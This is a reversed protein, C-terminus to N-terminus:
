AQFSYGIKLKILPSTKQHTFDKPNGFLWWYATASIVSKEFRVLVRLYEYCLIDESDEQIYMIM